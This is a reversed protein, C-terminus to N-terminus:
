RTRVRSAYRTFRQDSPFHWFDTGPTLARNQGTIRADRAPWPDMETGDALRVRSLLGIRYTGRQLERQLRAKEVRWQRRLDWVDAADPWDRRQRCLWTFAEELMGDSTLHTM